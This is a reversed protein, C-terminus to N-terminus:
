YVNLKFLSSLQVYKIIIKVRLFALINVWIDDSITTALCIAKESHRPEKSAGTRSSGFNCPWPRDHTHKNGGPIDVSFASNESRVAAVVSSSFHTRSKGGYEQEM